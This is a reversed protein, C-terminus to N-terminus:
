HAICLRRQLRTDRTTTSFQGPTSIVVRIKEMLRTRKAHQRTARFTHKSEAKQLTEPRLRMLSAKEDKTSRPVRSEVLYYLSREQRTHKNTHLARHLPSKQLCVIPVTSLSVRMFINYDETRRGSSQRLVCPRPPSQPWSSLRATADLAQTPTDTGKL